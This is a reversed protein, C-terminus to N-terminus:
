HGFWAIGAVSGKKFVNGREFNRTPAKWTAPKLVDGYAFKKDNTVNVIFSHISNGTWIGIYKSGVKFHVNNNWEAIMEERYARVDDSAHTLNWDAYTDKIHDMYKHVADVMTDALKETGVNKVTTTNNM